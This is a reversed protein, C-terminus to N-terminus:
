KVILKRVANVNEGTMRVFYAGQALNSVDFRFNQAAGQQQMMVRGNLDVIQVTVNGEIGAASIAVMTSAPNPSVSLVNNEVEDIGVTNSLEIDDIILGDGGMATINHFAIRISQGAYSSMDITRQRYYGNGESEALLVTSFDEVATGGNSLRVEYNSNIGGYSTTYIFFSFKYGAANAPMNIVPSVAWQDVNFDDSYNGLLCFSGSHAYQSSQFLEIGDSGEDNVFFRWCGINGEFDENWPASVAECTYVNVTATAATSSGVSNTAVVSVTHNGATTFSTTLTNDTTNADVGDVTWAFSTALPANAVFTVDTNIEASAPGEIAVTPVVDLEKVTINDVYLYYQYNSYYNIAVYKTGAPLLFAVETWATEPSEYTGLVTTFAAVENTTSSAMVRFKESSNHAKYMFKLMYEGSTPLELEPSILYQNYDAASSYSSFRFDYDGAFALSDEYVGFRNDNAPDASIMNWCRLSGEFDQTYPFEEIANCTYVDVLISDETDGANNSAVVSVNHIGDTTFTHTLVNSSENVSNGDVTWVFSSATPSTATFTVATGNVAEVPGALTLMPASLERVQISDLIIVYGGESNFHRFAVQFDGSISDPIIAMRQTFSAESMGTLSEEYLLITDNNNIVYVGYHDGDYTSSVPKVQWAIEYEDSAPMEIVPSFLWNDVPFDMMFLGWVSEASMSLVQGEPDSEFMDVSAFWGSQDTSDSRSTWCGLGGAFNPVYPITIDECSFVDVDITDYTDGVNNHAWAVVQHIGVTSFTYNMTDGTASQVDGDVYWTLSTVSAAAVYTAPMNTGIAVPGSITLEPATPGGVRIDDIDLFFMDTCNHHRFAVYITQGAYASLDVVRKTWEGTALGAYVATSPTFNSVANGATTVYVTYYEDAYTVDQSKAYWSLEYEEADSPIALAPLIMWNDPTLAAENDNDYSASAMVGDGSHASFRDASVTMRSWGNGDHDADVFHFGTLTASEFDETWPFVSITDGVAKTVNTAVAAASAKKFQAKFAAVPAVVAKKGPKARHATQAFSVSALLTLAAFFTFVKKM